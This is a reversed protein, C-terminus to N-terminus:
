HNFRDCVKRQFEKEVIHEWTSETEENIAKQLGEQKIATVLASEEKGGEVDNWASAVITRNTYTGVSPAPRAGGKISGGKQINVVAQRVYPIIQAVAWGWSHAIFGVSRLRRGIERKEEKTMQDENLAPLGEASRRKNIIRPLLQGRNILDKIVERSAKLTHRIAARCIYLLKRNLIESLTRSSDRAARTIAEHLQTTDVNITPVLM